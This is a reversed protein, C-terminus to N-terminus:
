MKNRGRLRHSGLGVGGCGSENGTECSERRGHDGEGLLARSGERDKFIM